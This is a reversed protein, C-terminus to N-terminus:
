KKVTVKVNAASLATMTDGSPNDSISRKPHALLFDVVDSTFTKSIAPVHKGGVITWSEVTTGAECAPYVSVSSESGKLKRDLDLKDASKILKKACRDLRAWTAITKVAGPIVRGLMHNGKYTEDSTGWIQLISIPASPQCTSPNAYTGGALNVVAAIRDAHACAMHNVMFGGNSHGIIFIRGPDVNYKRSVGDIVDMLYQDDNVKMKAYGCCEPTANWFQNGSKDATGDPHVYLVGRAQAVATLNLYKELQNGSSAYGHLALLLPAPNIKNYSTPVFLKFPRVGTFSVISANSPAMGILSTFFVVGLTLPVIRRYFGRMCSITVPSSPFAGGPSCRV